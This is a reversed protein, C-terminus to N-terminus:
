KGRNKLHVSHHLIINGFNDTFEEYKSILADARATLYNYSLLASIASLLGIGTAILAEAIGPAVNAISTSSSSGIAIFSNMIGFVTGLLGIYPSSSAITALLDLDAYVNKEEEAINSQMRSRCHEVLLQIPVNKGLLSNFDQLTNLFIRVSGDPQPQVQLYQQALANLNSASNFHTVLTFHQAELRRFQMKKKFLTYLSYAAGFALLLMILQVFIHAQFILHSFSIQSNM